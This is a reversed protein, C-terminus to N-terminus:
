YFRKFVCNEGFLKDPKTLNCAKILSTNWLAHCQRSYGLRNAELNITADQVHIFPGCLLKGGTM